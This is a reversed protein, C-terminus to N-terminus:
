HLPWDWGHGGQNWPKGDCWVERTILDGEPRVEVEWEVQKGKNEGDPDSLSHRVPDFPM